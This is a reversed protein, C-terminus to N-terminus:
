KDKLWLGLQFANIVFSTSFYRKPSQDPVLGDLYKSVSKTTVYHKLNTSTELEHLKAILRERELLFRPHVTPITSRSKDHRMRIKEPLLGITAERIMRRQIGGGTKQDTPLDLYFQMLRIDLLPYRYDVGYTSAGVASDELRYVVHPSHIVDHEQERVSGVRRRTPNAIARAPYNTVDALKASMIKLTSDLNWKKKRLRGRITAIIPFRCSLFRFLKRLIGLDLYQIERWLGAWDRRQVYENEWGHGHSTVMQDGGFGSLLTRIGKERLTSLLEEGVLTLDSRSPGSHVQINRELLSLIGRDEGYIPHHVINSHKQCIDEMQSSEDKFPFVKGINSKPMTHSFAQIKENRTLLIKSATATVTTSDLGGSMECGVPSFARLRCRVAENLLAKFSEVYESTPSNGNESRIELQWYQNQTIAQASCHMWNAAPLTQIGQYITTEVDVKCSALLDAVWYDNPTRDVWPLTLLAAKTSAFAIVQKGQAIFLPRVGMHDRILYLSSTITDVIAIVFDGILQKGLQKGFQSYALLILEEDTTKESLNIGVAGAIQERNDIRGDFVLRYRDDGSVIPQQALPSQPTNYQQKCGLFYSTGSVIEVRDHPWMTCADVMKKSNDADVETGKLGFMGFILSM